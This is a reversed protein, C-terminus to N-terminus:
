FGRKKYEKEVSKRMADRWDLESQYRMDDKIKEISDKMKQERVKRAVSQETVDEGQEPMQANLYEEASQYEEPTSRGMFDSKRAM